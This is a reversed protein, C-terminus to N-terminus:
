NISELYKLLDELTDIVTEKEVKPTNFNFKGELSVSTFLGDEIAKWLAENEVKYVGFLSGDEVAEFGMPNVGKEVDKIFIQELEFGEIYAHEDHELNIATQFGQKLFKQAMLKITDKPFTIFFEQGDMRRFIPFDARCICTLIKHEKGDNLISCKLVEEQKDFAMWDVMIAPRDTLAIATMGIADDVGIEYIPLGRFTQM